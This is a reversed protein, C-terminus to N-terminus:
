KVLSKGGLMAKINKRDTNRTMIFFAPILFLSIASFQIFILQGGGAPPAAAAAQTAGIDTAGGELQVAGIDWSAAPAIVCLGLLIIVILIIKM